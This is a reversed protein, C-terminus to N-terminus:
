LKWRSEACQPETGGLLEPGNAPKNGAAKQPRSSVAKQQWTHTRTLLGTGCMRFASNVHVEEASYRSAPFTSPTPTWMAASPERSASQTGWRAAVGRGIGSAVKGLTGFQVSSHREGKVLLPGQRPRRQVQFIWIQGSVSAGQASQTLRLM